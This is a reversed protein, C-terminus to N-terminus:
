LQHLQPQRTKPQTAVLFLPPTFSDSVNSERTDPMSGLSVNDLLFFEKINQSHCRSAWPITFVHYFLPCSKLSPGYKFLKFRITNINVLCLSPENNIKPLYQSLYHKEIKERLEYGELSVASSFHWPHPTLMKPVSNEKKIGKREETGVM